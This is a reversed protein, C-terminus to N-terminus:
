KSNYWYGENSEIYENVNIEVSINNKKCYNKIEDLPSYDIGKHGSMTFTVETGCVDVDYFFNGKVGLLREIVKKKNGVMLSLIDKAIDITDINIYGRGMVDYGM